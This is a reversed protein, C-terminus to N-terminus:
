SCKQYRAFHGSDLKKVIGARLLQWVYTNVTFRNAELKLSFEDITYTKKPNKDFLALIKQKLTQRPTNFNHTKM